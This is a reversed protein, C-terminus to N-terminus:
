DRTRHRYAQVGVVVVFTVVAVLGVIILWGWWHELAGDELTMATEYTAALVLLGGVVVWSKWHLDSFIRQTRRM